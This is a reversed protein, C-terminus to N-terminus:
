ASVEYYSFAGTSGIRIGDGAAVVFGGTISITRYTDPSTSGATILYVSNGGSIHRVYGANSNIYNAVVTTIIWKKGAPVTYDQSDNNTSYRLTTTLGSFAGIIGAPIFSGSQSNAGM